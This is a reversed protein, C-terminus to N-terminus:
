IILTQDSTPINPNWEESGYGLYSQPCDLKVYPFPDKEHNYLDGCFLMISYNHLSNIVLCLVLMTM